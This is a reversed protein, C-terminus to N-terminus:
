EEKDVKQSLYVRDREKWFECWGFTGLVKHKSYDRKPQKKFWNYFADLLGKTKKLPEVSPDTFDDCYDTHTMGSNRWRNHVLIEYEIEEDSLEYLNYTRMRDFSDDGWDEVGFWVIKGKYRAVGSLPGDYYGSHWLMQPEDEQKVEDFFNTVPLEDTGFPTKVEIMKTQYNEEWNFDLDSVSYSLGQKERWDAWYDFVHMNIYERTGVLRYFDIKKM